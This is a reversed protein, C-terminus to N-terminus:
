AGLSNAHSKKEAGEDLPPSLELHISLLNMNEVSMPQVFRHSTHERRLQTPGSLMGPKAPIPQVLTEKDCKWLPQPGNWWAMCTIRPLCKNVEWNGSLLVLSCSGQFVPDLPSLSGTRWSASSSRGWTGENGAETLSIQGRERLWPQLMIFLLNLWETDLYAEGDTCINKPTYHSCAASM